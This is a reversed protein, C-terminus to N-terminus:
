KEAEATLKKGTVALFVDDMKGKVIEYDNFLERNGVILSTAQATDRVEIRFADRIKEYPMGLAAVADEDANYLTIFDGTYKNKLDLPTGQAVIKGDDIIVIYDADTTEEMYHTTLFVTMNKERRLKGIVEWINKRTQPDLGTTPEDLILIKPEAIIARAIDVRRRQGGSLKGLPRKLFDKLEFLETLQALRAEFDKGCIGYCAARNKLNDKVSLAKDLVSSQFVVGINRKIYEADKAVDYGDIIVQGGDACLTGCIMSITTSKGAGNIGLFAFLEGERVEFSVDQVAKIEGFSKTLGSIEIVTKRDESAM